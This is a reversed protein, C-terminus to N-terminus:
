QGLWSCGASERMTKLAGTMNPRAPPAPLTPLDIGRLRGYLNNNRWKIKPAPEEVVAVACTGSGSAIVTNAEIRTAIVPLVQNSSASGYNVHLGYKCDVLTNYRVVADKVQWYGSLKPNEQGRVICIATRYGTGALREFYNREVTHREGIIRVGGTGELGNGIFCNETVLCDNGHRLTLSGQCEVFLNGRYTNGCSKNSVIEAQEGHCHYFYNEEVTCAAEQMSFESTGIRITEQGNIAKGAEDRLTVPRTFHNRVITHHPVIEPELWVVLLTGINRKDCFTSGEVRHDTGYLSVWKNDTAADELTDDGTIACNRLTGHSSGKAFTVVSKGAVPAPNRWWFGNVEAYSGTVTIRSAGTFLVKGPTEARLLVPNEATGAAALDIVENSYLGNRWIVVSGAPLKGLAKVEAASAVYHTSASNDAPQEPQSELRKSSCGFVLTLVLLSSFFYKWM